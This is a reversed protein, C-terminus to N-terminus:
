LMNVYGRTMVIIIRIIRLFIFQDMYINIISKIVSVILNVLLKCFFIRLEKKLLNGLIILM